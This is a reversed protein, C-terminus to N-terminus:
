RWGLKEAIESNLYGTQKKEALYVTDYGLVLEGEISYEFPWNPQAAFKVEIEEAVDEGLEEVMEDVIAKLDALTFKM